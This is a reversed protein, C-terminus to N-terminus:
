AYPCIANTRPSSMGRSPVMSPAAKTKRIFSSIDGRTCFDSSPNAEPTMTAAEGTTGLVVLFDVKAALQRDLLRHLATEDVKGTETFPTVLATGLGQIIQKSM